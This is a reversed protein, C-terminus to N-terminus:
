FLKLDMGVGAKKAREYVLAATALDQVALGTSDFVTVEDKSARGVKLGAVVEGMEGYLDDKSMIGKSIPVNVEGSYVAQDFDDVVVKARRLITPDLEQKDPADAGIANIHVGERIWENMVIPKRSPTATIVIDCGRAAEEPRKAAKVRIGLEKSMEMALREAKEPMLDYVRVEEMRIVEHVALLQTEAQAGAGFIGVMKAGKRAMYKSAIGSAAGTRMTTIWTGDMVALPEGTRPEVLVIIAMVTPLNYRTPNYPHSNVLKAGAIGIEELYAPMIRLDGDYKTFPLYSKPPMQARGLAKEKFALEVRELVDKMTVLRKVEESGLFLVM